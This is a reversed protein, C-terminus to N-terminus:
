LIRSGWERLNTVINISSGKFYIFIVMNNKNRNINKEKRGIDVFIPSISKRTRIGLSEIRYFFHLRLNSKLKRLIANMCILDYSTAHELNIYDM